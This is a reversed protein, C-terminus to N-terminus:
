SNIKGNEWLDAWGMPRGRGPGQGAPWGLNVGGRGWRGGEEKKVTSAWGEQAAADRRRGAQGARVRPTNRRIRKRKTFAGVV